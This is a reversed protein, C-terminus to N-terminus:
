FVMGQLTLKDFVEQPITNSERIVRAIAEWEESYLEYSEKPPELGKRAWDLLDPGAKTVLEDEELLLIETRSITDDHQGDMRDPRLELTMKFFNPMKLITTALFEQTEGSFQEPDPDLWFVHEKKAREGDEPKSFV